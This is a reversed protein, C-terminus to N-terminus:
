VRFGCSVLMLARVWFGQYGLFGFAKFRINGIFLRGGGGGVNAAAERMKPSHGRAFCLSALGGVM